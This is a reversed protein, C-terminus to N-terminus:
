QGYCNLELGQACLGERQCDGAEFNDLPEVIMSRYPIPPDAEELFPLRSSRQSSHIVEIDAIGLARMEEVIQGTTTGTTGEDEVQKVVAAPGFQRLASTATEGLMAVRDPKITTLVTLERGHLQQLKQGVGTALSNAGNATGVLFDIAGTTEHIYRAFTECWFDFEPSRRDLRDHDRKVGHVITGDLKPVFESHTGPADQVIPWAIERYAEIQETLEAFYM